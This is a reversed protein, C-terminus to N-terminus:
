NDIQLYYKIDKVAFNKYGTDLSEGGINIESRERNEEGKYYKYASYIAAKSRLEALDFLDKINKKYKEGTFLDLYKLNDELPDSRDFHNYFLALLSEDKIIKIKYMFLMIKYFVNSRFIVNYLYQKRLSSKIDNQYINLKSALVDMIEPDNLTKWEISSEFYFRNNVKKDLIVEMHRHRFVALKRKEINKNYYDGTLYYVVPHFVIDLYCHTLLGFVFVYLKDNKKSKAEDLIEFIIKNTLNGDKGHLIDSINQISGKNSYFFCDPFVSGLYFYDIHKSIIDFLEKNLRKIKNAFFLHTNERPM